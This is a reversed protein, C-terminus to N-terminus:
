LFRGNFFSLFASVWRFAGTWAGGYPVWHGSGLSPLLSSDCSFAVIPVGFRVAARMERLSGRSGSLWFVVVGRSSRVMDRSRSALAGLVVGRSAGASAVGPVFRGGLALFRSLLPRVAVPVCSPSSGFGFVASCSCASAGLSVLADLVYLDCGLAGGSAIGFGRSSLSWVVSAVRSALSSELRRSGVVTVLDSMDLVELDFFSVREPV